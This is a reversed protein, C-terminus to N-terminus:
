KMKNRRRRTGLDNKDVYQKNKEQKLMKMNNEMKSCIVLQIKKMIQSHVVVYLDQGGKAKWTIYRKERTRDELKRNGAKQRGGM